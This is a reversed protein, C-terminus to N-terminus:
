KKYLIADLKERGLAERASAEEATETTNWLFGFFFNLIWCIIWWIARIFFGLLFVHSLSDLVKYLFYGWFIALVSLWFLNVIMELIFRLDM